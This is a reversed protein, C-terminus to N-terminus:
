VPEEKQPEAEVKSTNGRTPWPRKVGAKQMIKQVSLPTSDFKKVITDLDVGEQYMKIAERKEDDTWRHFGRRDTKPATKVPKPEQKVPEVKVTRVQKPEDDDFVFRYTTIEISKLQAM